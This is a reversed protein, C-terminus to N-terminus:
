NRPSPSPTGAGSETSGASRPRVRWVIYADTEALREGTRAISSVLTSDREAVFADLAEIYPDPNGWAAWLGRQALLPYFGKDFMQEPLHKHQVFIAGSAPAVRPRSPDTYYQVAAEIRESPILILDVTPHNFYYSYLFYFAHNTMIYQGPESYADLQTRLSAIAKEDFTAKRFRLVGDISNLALAAFLAIAIGRALPRSASLLMAILAASAVAYFPLVLLTPYYQSIWLEAFLALFPLAALFLLWPNPQPVLPFGLQQGWRKRIIPACAWFAAVVFLLTSFCRVVRGYLTPLIGPAIPVHTLPNHTRELAQFRLDALFPQLGGLVWINTGFKFVMGALAFLALLALLRMAQWTVGRHGIVMMAILLPAFFWFDYSSLITFFLFTGSGALYRAGRGDRLYRLLWYLCGGGFFAAYPAHHLYDAHQIWLPNLVWLALAIQAVPRSWYAVLLGYIFYLAAFSFGIAVLRFQQLTSLGFVVRLVGNMLDPLQPYHTYIKSSDGASMLAPDLLYPTFKLAFFGYKHFNRGASMVNYDSGPDGWNLRPGDFANAVCYILALGVCVFGINRWVLEAVRRM